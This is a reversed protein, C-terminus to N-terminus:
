NNFIEILVKSSLKLSNKNSIYEFNDPVKRVKLKDLLAKKFSPSTVFYDKGEFTCSSDEKSILVEHLKEGPRIGIKKIKLNLNLTKIIDIISMSPIKPIFIENGNMNKLCKLVFDVGEQKEIWFRTMREDTVPIQKIKEKFILKKFLSIASGRSDLVNGYRVVSFISNQNGAYNNAALFVKDSALKSAGYLNIPNVAKDTSIVIVKKVSNYLSAKVVNEAGLVNTNICEFPNYEATDIQKLAAAHIVYDVTRFAMMLRDFNRVDGIFFRLINFSKYKELKQKMVSQKYEDRSFIVLRKLNAYQLLKEIMATGFSGTAGTVLLTKKNLYKLDTFFKTKKLM